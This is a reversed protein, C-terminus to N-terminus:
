SRLGALRRAEARASRAVAPGSNNACENLGVDVTVGAGVRVGAMDGLGVAAGEGVGEVVGEDERKRLRL